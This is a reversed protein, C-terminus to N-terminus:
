FTVTPRSGTSPSYKIPSAIVKPRQAVLFFQKGFFRWALPTKLYLKLFFIPYRVGHAMTYPLFKAISFIVDFGHIKLGEALSMETLPLYHDWFDWYAGSLYKVNPGLAILKGGPNLSRFAQELTSALAQKNPLHEFFNSTFIVDLSGDPLNWTVSCDQQLFQVDAALLKATHPNMDMGFKRRCQVNNIFEGYGCGVDLVAADRPVYEQLFDDILVRWVRNRYDQRGKFRQEYITALKSEKQIM